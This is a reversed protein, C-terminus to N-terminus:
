GSDEDGEGLIKYIEKASHPVSYRYDGDNDRLCFSDYPCYRCGDALGKLPKVAVNGGLLEEGMERVTNDIHNFILAFQEGSAVTDSYEGDLQKKSLKIFSGSKDMSHLIKEDRLLLGNMRLEDDFKKQLKSKDKLAEYNIVPASAPMYLIGSPVIKNGYHEEGGLSIARLYILMQMNIGYIIEGLSFTKAGTKYDIIRIYSKDNDRLEDVRDVFGNLTVKREADIDVTYPPIDGDKGIKLEFDVPVFDSNGLQRILHKTLSFINIKLREFNKLFAASRGELGGFTENAYDLMINNVSKTIQEDSLSNLASKSNERLFHELFYHVINGFQIPDISAAKREKARLGYNCFYSFACLNYKELQSASINIERGFLKEATQPTIRGIPSNTLYYEIKALKASYEEDEAFYERLAQVEPTNDFFHAALYDFAQARDYVSYAEDCTSFLSDRRNPFLRVVETFIESPEYTQGSYDSQYTSVFLKESAATLVSYVLFKEHFALEDLNDTLPIDNEVLERRESDSFAGVTVPIKPFEGDIAGTVFVVKASNLRVRDAIGVSVQDQYRPIESYVVDSLMFELYEKYAKLSLKENGAAATLKDLAEIFLNYVRIEEDAQPLLNVSELQSCLRDVAADLKYSKMLEYIAKSITVADSDSSAARLTELPTIIQQRLAELEALKKEDEESLQEFGSPNDRFPEGLASNDIRWVFLYNEFDAIQTETFETLGTKLMSLLSDRDRGKIIFDLASCVFRVVPKTFIDQPSDMFYPINYREFTLDLIGNYKFSNRSVVAIDNYSYGDEAVLRKITRAVFDAEGYINSATYTEINKATTSYSIDDLRYINNELFSIDEKESRKFDSLITHPAVPVSNRKALRILAKRTRNTTAFLEEHRREYDLCITAYFEASGRMLVELVELQQYTFGSFSDCVITYGEFINDASLIDRLRTLNELPDVRTEGLVSKYADLVLSTERLKKRLTDSGVNGAASLLMDTSINDKRCESLSHLMLDLVSRRTKTSSYIELKDQVEALARSMIIRRVGDDIVNQPLNGTLNFVYDCLRSFGFVLVDRCMDPGLLELFSTETEFSSQDPVLMLLKTKGIKRLEAIINLAATTKGSGSKGLILHLM